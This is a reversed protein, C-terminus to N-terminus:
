THEHRFDPAAAGPHQLGTGTVGNSYGGGAIASGAGDEFNHVDEFNDIASGAPVALAASAAALFAVAVFRRVRNRVPTM